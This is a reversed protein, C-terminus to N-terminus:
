IRTLRFYSLFVVVICQKGMVPSGCVAYGPLLAVTNACRSSNAACQVPCAFASSGAVPDGYSWVGGQWKFLYAVSNQTGVLAEARIGGTSNSAALAVSVGFGVGGLTVAPSQLTWSASKNSGSYFYVRAKLHFHYGHVFTSTFLYFIFFYLLFPAFESNTSDGVLAMGPLMAVTLGFSSGACSGCETPTLTQLLAWRRSGSLGYICVALLLLSFGNM